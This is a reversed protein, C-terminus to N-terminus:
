RARSLLSHVSKAGGVWERRPAGVPGPTFLFLSVLWLATRAKLQRKPEGYAAPFTVYVQPVAAAAGAYGGGCAVAFTVGNAVADDRALGGFSFAAYRRLLVLRINQEEMPWGATPLRTLCVCM